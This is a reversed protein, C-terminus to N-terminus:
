GGLENILHNVVREPGKGDILAQGKLSISERVNKDELKKLLNITKKLIFRNEWNGAYLVIHSNQLEICNNLQNTAVSILISPTGTRALEYATQGGASIAVDTHLMVDIMMKADPFYLLHTNNDAADEVAKINKFGRGIVVEKRVSPYENCLAQLVKPTMNRDDDGGFTIMISKIEENIVKPPINWFEKRIPFYKTGLLYRICSKDRYNLKKAYINGNIVVGCPYDIRNNDDYYVPLKVHKSIREYVEKSAIYSDVIAIDARKVEKLLKNINRTWNYIEFEAGNLLDTISEDGNVIMKPKIGREEFAQHIALMRTLHGFGIGLGGETIILVKLGPSEM